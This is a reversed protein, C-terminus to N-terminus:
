SLKNIRRGEPCFEMSNCFGKCRRFNWSQENTCLPPIEKHELYGKLLKDQEAFYSLVDDEPLEQVPVMMIKETVGNNKATFTGGDRVIVEVMLRKVPIGVSRALIAYYSLQMGLIWRDYAGSHDTGLHKKVSYSGYCKRDVLKYFGENLDDPELLDIQGSIDAPVHKEAILGKINRAVDELRKHVKTGLLAFAQDFPKIAYDCTLMLYNIRLPNLLMTTSYHGSKYDRAKGIEHLTPLSLCRGQPRPCRELCTSIERRQYDSCDFYRLPSM